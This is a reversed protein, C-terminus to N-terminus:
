IFCDKQTFWGYKSWLKGHVQGHCMQKEVYASCFYVGDISLLGFFVCIFQLCAHFLQGVGFFDLFCVLGNNRGVIGIKRYKLISCLAVLGYFIKSFASNFFLLVFMM